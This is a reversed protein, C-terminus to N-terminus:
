GHIFRYPPSRGHDPTAEGLVRSADLCFRRGRSCSAVANGTPPIVECSVGNCDVTQLLPGYDTAREMLFRQAEALHWRSYMDPVGDEKVKKLVASLASASLHPVSRRFRDLEVFSKERDADRADRTKAKKLKSM